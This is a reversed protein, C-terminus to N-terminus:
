PKALAEIRMVREAAEAIDAQTALGLQNRERVTTLEQRAADVALTLSQPNPRQGLALQLRILQETALGIDSRRAAGIDYRAKADVVNDQALRLAEDAATPGQGLSVELEALRAAQAALDGRTVLAMNEQEKLRAFAARATDLATQEAPTLLRPAPATRVEAAAFAPKAAARPTSLGAAHPAAQALLPRTVRVPLPQAAAQVVDHTVVRVEDNSAWAGYGAGTLVLAIAAAGLYRRRRSVPKMKLMAFREKLPNPSKAPWYCGLPSQLPALQTKLMAGAYLRRADPHREIVAADCAMEQDLRLLRAGVHVMPNMWNLCQFVVVAANIAADARALHIREHTIVVAQEPATFRKEFDAPVVIRPRLAGIVAPGSWVSESRLIDGNGTAQLRGLRTLSRRHVTVVAVFAIVSGALWLALLVVTMDITVPAATVSPSPLAWDTVVRAVTDIPLGPPTLPTNARAPLLAAVCTLPAALWLAYAAGPGFLRRAPTRFAVVCLMALSAALNLRILLTLIDAAM